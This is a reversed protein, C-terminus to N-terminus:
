KIKITKPKESEAKPIYLALIGDRYEAKVGAPDIQLPLRLTRDFDGSLRERRHVSIRQEYGVAKKGSIRVTNERVQVELDSKNVGALEVVAVLDDGRQFVNIPPFPGMSTTSDQLWENTRRAELARQLNLLSDFPDGYTISM